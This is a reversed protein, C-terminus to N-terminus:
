YYNIKTGDDELLKNRILGCFFLVYKMSKPIRKVMIVEFVLANSSKGYPAIVTTRIFGLLRCIDLLVFSNPNMAETTKVNYKM